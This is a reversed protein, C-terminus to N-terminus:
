RPLRRGLRVGLGVGAVVLGLVVLGAGVLQQGGLLLPLPVLPAGDALSPPEYVEESLPAHAFWGFSATPATAAVSSGAVVLLVAVVVLVRVVAM